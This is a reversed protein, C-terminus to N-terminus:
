GGETAFASPLDSCGGRAPPYLSVEVVPRLLPQDRESQGQSRELGINRGLPAVQSLLEEV